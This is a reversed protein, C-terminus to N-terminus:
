QALWRRLAVAVLAPVMFVVLFIPLEQAVTYGARTVGIWMNIAAGALWVPLFVLIARGVGLQTVKGVFGLLALLALGGGIVTITHM